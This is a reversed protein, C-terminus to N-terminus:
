RVSVSFSSSSTLALPLNLGPCQKQSTRRCLHRPTFCLLHFLFLFMTSLTSSNPKSTETGVHLDAIWCVRYKNAKENPVSPVTLLLNSFGKTQREKSSDTHLVM